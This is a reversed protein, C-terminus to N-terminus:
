FLDIAAEPQLGASLSRNMRKPKPAEDDPVVDFAISIRYEDAETPITRHRYHSPSLLLMGERPAIRSVPLFDPLARQVAGPPGFEICGRGPGDTSVTKPVRVYYVGSMWGGPHLHWEEFDTRRQILGWSRLHAFGPRGDPWPDFAGRREVPENSVIEQITEMLQEVIRRNRGAFLSHVRSSGRNAEHAPLESIAYPNGLIEEALARNFAALDAFGDPVPLTRSLIRAPDVLIARAEDLRGALALASGWDYLLQTHRVGRGALSECLELMEGTRGAERLMRCLRRCAERNLPDEDLVARYAAEAEPLRGLTHLAVAREFVIRAGEGGELITLADRHRSLVNYCHALPVRVNPIDPELHLAAEFAAAAAGFDYKDLELCALRVRLEAKGPQAAIAAGLLTRVAAPDAVNQHDAGRWLIRQPV